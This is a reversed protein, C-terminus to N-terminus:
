YCDISKDSGAASPLYTHSTWYTGTLVKSTAQGQAEATKAALTTSVPRPQLEEAKVNEGLYVFANGLNASDRAKSREAHAYQQRAAWLAQYTYHFNGPM